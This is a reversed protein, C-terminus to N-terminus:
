ASFSKAANRATHRRFAVRVLARPHIPGGHRRNTELLFLLLHPGIVVAADACDRERRAEFGRVEDYRNTRKSGRRGDWRNEPGSSATSIPSRAARPRM